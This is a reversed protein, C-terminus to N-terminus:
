SVQIKPVLTM